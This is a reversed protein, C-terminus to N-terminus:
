RDAQIWNPFKGGGAADIPGSQGSVDYLGSRRAAGLVTARGIDFRPKHPKWGPRRQVAADATRLYHKPKRVPRLREHLARSETGAEAPIAQLNAM